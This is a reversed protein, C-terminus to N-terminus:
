RLETWYMLSGGAINFSVSYTAAAPVIASVNGVMGGETGASAMNADVLVGSVVMQINRDQFANGDGWANVRIPRGTTNTYTTGLARSGTVDQWTQGVGLPVVATALMSQSVSAIDGTTVVNGNNSPLNLTTNSSTTPELLTVSGGGSSNLKLSM